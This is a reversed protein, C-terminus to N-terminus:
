FESRALVLFGGFSAAAGGLVLWRYKHGADGAARAKRATVSDPPVVPLLDEPYRVERGDALILTRSSGGKNSYTIREKTAALQNYAAVRQDPRWPQPPLRLDVHCAVLGLCLVGVVWRM